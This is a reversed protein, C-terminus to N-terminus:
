APGRSSELAILCDRLEGLSAASPILLLSWDLREDEIAFRSNVVLVRDLEMAQDMLAFDLLSGAFEHRFEPPSPLIADPSGLATGGPMPLHAALSNVYACGVNNATENAASVELEGWAGATGVPQGLLLDALALGSRDLFVLILLGGIRGSLEMASAAVLEDPPGLLEAAEGLEVEEVEGTALTASRGRWRTLATSAQEAGREFIAHLAQKQSISLTAPVLNM